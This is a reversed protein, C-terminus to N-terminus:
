EPLVQAETAVFNIQYTDYIVEKIEGDVEEIIKKIKREGTSTYATYQITTQDHPLVVTMGDYRPVSTYNFLKDFENEEGKKRGVTIKHGWFTGLPDLTMPAGQAMTRGTNESYLINFSESIELVRVNWEKGDLKFWKM